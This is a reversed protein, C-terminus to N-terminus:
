SGVHFQARFVFPEPRGPITVIFAETFDGAKDPATITLPIIHTSKRGLSDQMKFCNLDTECEIKGIEFAQQSRLVVPITKETGPTLNGFKVLEPAAVIDPEINAEITIPFEPNSKDDTVLTVRDLLTGIPATPLLRMFLQYKVKDGTRSVERVEATLFQSANRVQSIKWDTRGAYTIDVTREAGTGWMINGFGANEPNVVIDSRIFATIPVRVAKSHVGGFSVTVDLNSNKRGMHNKTDMKVEITAKEHTKLTRKDAEAHACSCSTGVSTLSITEKYLNEVTVYHCVEAGRVITGFDINQDSFMKEAWSLEKGQQQAVAPSALLVALVTAGLTQNVLRWM